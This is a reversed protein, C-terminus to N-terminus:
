GMVKIVSYFCGQFEEFLFSVVSRFVCESAKSGDLFGLFFGEFGLVNVFLLGRRVVGEYFFGAGVLLIILLFSVFFILNKYGLDILRPNTEYLLFIFFPPRSREGLTIKM